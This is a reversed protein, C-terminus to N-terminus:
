RNHCCFVSRIRGDDAADERKLLLGNVTTPIAGGPNKPSVKRLLGGSKKMGSFVDELRIIQTILLKCPQFQNPAHLRARLPCRDFGFHAHFQFLPQKRVPAVHVRVRPRVKRILGQIKVGPPEPMVPMRSCYSCQSWIRIITEPNTSSITQALTALRMSTRPMSRRRCVDNLM